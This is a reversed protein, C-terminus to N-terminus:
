ERGELAPANVRAGGTSLREFYQRNLEEWGVPSPDQMGGLLEKQVDTPLNPTADQRVVFEGEVYQKVNDLGELLVRRRRSANQYRGAKLDREIQAMLGIMKKLDTHHYNMIQFKLDIQEAQNRLAAQKGALRNREAQDRAGPTPGELGEGGEGSGKGGGTAGGVPDKSHDKIEGDVYPDPTLRSPTKRGGKGVAEDGVFEGSSKGQRGEGARGGIESTNPLRNGTAGKASMNSIPGDAVDWGAGKDLSDAASSSVDEMEDFLDEEEELLDGILDELEGPLEAMPAEKMEDNLYEEQSWRERDPTDPLWKEMNTQIEEAMEAGLQELPVAIDSTKKLLADEAMKIETQIEVLEQLMSPNAFDQDPLKSLDTNLEKMFKSWDDEAAELTKLLQEKEEAFDEVPAKALNDSAEVVKKQQELAEELASSLDELAQRETDDPLDGAPREEMEDLVESRAHRTVDLLKRLVDIIRQQTDTLEPVPQDFGELAKVKLLGDCQKVAELMDGFSLQNMIRKIAQREEAETNGISKALGISAKQVDVQLGRVDTVRDVREALSARQLVTAARANALIQKELIKWIAARLGDLGELAHKNEQEKAVIRLRHWGTAEEQPKLLEGRRVEFRRKDEAVARVMVVQGAEVRDSPLEFHHDLVIATQNENAFETWEKLTAPPIIESSQGADGDPAPGGGTIKWELRVSGLGHDDGARITVPVDDGPTASGERAPKLLEVTPGQDPLVRVHNVRPNPDSHGADDFLHVTFTTDRLLPMRVLLLQGDHEVTGLHRESEAQVYGQAVAVTPRIHLEAVTYQPAELDATKQPPLTEKTRGLYLPYRYTVEVEEITPKQRIGVSFRGTQSDGIELRYTLPKTVTPLTLTYRRRGQSGPDGGQVAYPEGATMLRSEEVEGDQTILLTARYPADPRDDVVEATIELSSGSLVDVDDPEHTMMPTFVITGNQTVELIKVSGISPVFEWPKMLRGAASGWNPVLLHCMIALAVVLGFFLMSGGFDRPMQMCRRFRGWASERYAAEEFRVRRVQSAAEAVAAQCFPRSENKTDESLQVVNILRSGLEPYKAEVCRATGELSRQSRALRRCLLVAMTITVALWALFLTLLFLQSLRVLADTLMFLFLTGLSVSTALVATSLLTFLWWRQRTQDLREIVNQAAPSM